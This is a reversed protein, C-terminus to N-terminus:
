FPPIWGLNSQATFPPFPGLPAASSVGTAGKAVNNARTTATKLGQAARVKPPRNIITEQFCQAHQLEQALTWAAVISKSIESLINSLM